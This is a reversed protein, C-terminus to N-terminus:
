KKSQIYPQLETLRTQFLFKNFDESSMKPQRDFPLGRYEGDLLVYVFVLGQSYVDAKMGKSIDRYTKEIQPIDILDADEYGLTLRLPDMLEPALWSMDNSHESVRQPHFYDSLWASLGFDAWKMLVSSESDDTCYILVNRPKANLHVLGHDHIYKMGNALQLLIDEKRPLRGRYKRPDKDDLFTQNLSAVCLEM